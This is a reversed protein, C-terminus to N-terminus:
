KSMGQLRITIYMYLKESLESPNPVFLRLPADRDVLKLNTTDTTGLSWM